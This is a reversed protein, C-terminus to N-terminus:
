DQRMQHADFVSRLIHRYRLVEYETMFEGGAEAATLSCILTFGSILLLVCHLSGSGTQIYTCVVCM